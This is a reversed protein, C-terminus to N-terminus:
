AHHHNGAKAEACLASGGHPHTADETQITVHGIGQGALRHELHRLIGQSESVTLDGDLVVHCSLANKGATISWLHVDHVESVGPEAEIMGVIGNFDLGRPTSEMLIEIAQRLLRWAGFAVLLAILVSLIPDLVYLRTPLIVLAAVIVGASAAADGLMHLVASRVNLDQDHRMGLGMYLNVFLGVSASIIMWGGEVPQPHLLRNYAELLIFCTILLLLTGNILAALIGARYYGYTMRADSPREAQRLAYWSLGIAALDTVVHAADAFLALSHALAAGCVEAILILGTLWFARRMKGAPAHTHFIGSHEHQHHHTCQSAQSQSLRVRELTHRRRRPTM